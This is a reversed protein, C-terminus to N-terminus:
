MTVDSQPALLYAEGLLLPALLLHNMQEESYRQKMWGIVSQWHVHQPSPLVHQSCKLLTKPRLEESACARDPFLGSSPKLSMNEEEDCTWESGKTLLDKAEAFAHPM